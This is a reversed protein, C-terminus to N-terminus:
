PPAPPTNAVDVFPVVHDVFVDLVVADINDSAYELPM